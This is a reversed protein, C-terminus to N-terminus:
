GFGHYVHRACGVGDSYVTGSDFQPRAGGSLPLSFLLQSHNTLILLRNCMTKVSPPHLYFIFNELEFIFPFHFMAVSYCGFVIKNKGYYKIKVVFYLLLEMFFLFFLTLKWVRNLYGLTWKRKFKLKNSASDIKVSCSESARVTDRVSKMLNQANITLM